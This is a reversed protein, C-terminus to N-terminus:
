LLGSYDPPLTSTHIVLIVGLVLYYLNDRFLMVQYIFEETSNDGQFLDLIFRMM